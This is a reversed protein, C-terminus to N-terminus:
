LECDKCPIFVAPHVVAAVGDGGCEPCDHMIKGDGIKGTGNCNECRGPEPDGDHLASVIALRATETAIDATILPDAPLTAVCGSAALLFAVLWRM